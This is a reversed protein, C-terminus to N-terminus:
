ELLYHVVRETPDVVITGNSYTQKISKIKLSKVRNGAYSVGSQAVSMEPSYGNIHNAGWNKEVAMLGTHGFSGWTLSVGNNIQFRLKNNSISLVQTWTLVENDYRLLSRDARSYTGERAESYWKHVHLGGPSWSPASLHNLEFTFYTDDLHTFPGMTTMVQPGATITEPEGLVLEWNEEVKVLDQASAASPGCILAVACCLPVLRTVWRPVVMQHTYKM